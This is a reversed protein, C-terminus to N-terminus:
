ESVSAVGCPSTVRMSLKVTMCLRWVKTGGRRVNALHAERREKEGALVTVEGRQHESRGHQQM